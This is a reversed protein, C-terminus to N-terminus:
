TRGSEGPQQCRHISGDYLNSGHIAKQFITPNSTVGKLGDEDMFRKLKGSELLERSLFDIWVSQGLSELELLPNRDAEM